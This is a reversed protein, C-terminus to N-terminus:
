MGKFEIKNKVVSIVGDNQLSTLKRSLTERRLGVMNALDTKTIPLEIYHKKGKMYGFKNYLHTLVNMIKDDTDLNSFNFLQNQFVGLRNAACNLCAEKFKSDCQYNELATKKNLKELVVEQLTTATVLYEKSGKLITLLALFDGPKLIDILKEEGNAYLKTLKVIGEKIFYINDVEEGELFITVGKKFISQKGIDSRFICLECTAM